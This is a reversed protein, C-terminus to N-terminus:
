FSPRPKRPRDARPEPGTRRSQPRPGHWHAKARGSAQVSANRASHFHGPLCRDRCTVSGHRCSSSCRRSGWARRLLNPGAQNGSEAEGALRGSRRRGGARDAQRSGTRGSERCDARVVWERRLRRGASRCGRRSDEAQRRYGHPIEASDSARVRRPILPWVMEDAAEGPPGRRSWRTQRTAGAVDDQM